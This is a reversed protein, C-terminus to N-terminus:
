NLSTRSRLDTIKGILRKREQYRIRTTMKCETEGVALHESPSDWPEILANKDFGRRWTADSNASRCTSKPIAAFPDSIMSGTSSIMPVLAGLDVRLMWSVVHTNPFAAGKKEPLNM